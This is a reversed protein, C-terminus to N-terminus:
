ELQRDFRRYYTEFASRKVKVIKRVKGNINTETPMLGVAKFAGVSHPDLIHDDASPNNIDKAKKADQDKWLLAISGNKM